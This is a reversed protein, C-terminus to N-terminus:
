ENGYDDDDDEGPDDDDDDDYVNHNHNFYYFSEIMLIGSGDRLSYSNIMAMITIMM